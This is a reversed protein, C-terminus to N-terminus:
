KGVEHICGFSPFKRKHAKNFHDSSATANFSLKYPYMNKKGSALKEANSSIDNLSKINNINTEM